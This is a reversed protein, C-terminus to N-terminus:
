NSRVDKGDYKYAMYICNAISVTQKTKPKRFVERGKHIVIVDGCDCKIDTM